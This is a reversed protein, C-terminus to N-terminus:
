RVVGIRPIIRLPEVQLIEEYLDGQNRGHYAHGKPYKRWPPEGGNVCPFKFDLVAQVHLPNGTHIVVDPEISGYLQASEGAELLAKVRAPSLYQVEGTAPDVRYRPSLSFGGPKMEGLKTMACRLAIEHQESGLRMARTIPEGKRDVEVVEDCEARTPSRGDFYKLLVESRAEDACRYLSELLNAMLTADITM